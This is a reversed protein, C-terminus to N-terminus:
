KEGEQLFTNLFGCDRTFLLKRACVRTSLTSVASLVNILNEPSAVMCGHTIQKETSFQKKMEKKNKYAMRPFIYLYFFNNKFLFDILASKEMTVLKSVSSQVIKFLSGLECKQYTMGPMKLNDFPSTYCYVKKNEVGIVTSDDGLRNKVEVKRVITSKGMGSPGIFAYAKKNKIFASGHFLLVNKSLLYVSLFARIVFFISYKNYRRPPFSIIFLRSANRNITLLGFASEDIIIKTYLYREDKNICLYCKKLQVFLKRDSTCIEIGYRAVRFYFSYQKV